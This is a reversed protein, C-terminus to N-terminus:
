LGNVDGRLLKVIREGTKLALGICKDMDLYLYSGLRGGFIVGKEM